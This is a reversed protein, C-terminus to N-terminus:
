LASNESTFEAQKCALESEEEACAMLEGFSHWIVYWLSTCFYMEAFLAKKNQFIPSFLVNRM